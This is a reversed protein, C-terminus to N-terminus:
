EKHKEMFWDVWREKTAFGKYIIHEAKEEASLGNFWEENTITEKYDVCEHIYPSSSNCGRFKACNVCKIM